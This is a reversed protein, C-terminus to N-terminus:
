MRVMPRGPRIHPSSRTRSCMLVLPPAHIARRSSIARWQSRTWPRAALPSSGPGEYIMRHRGDRTRFVWPNTVFLPDPDGPVPGLRVGPDVIWNVGDSSFASQMGQGMLYMRYGGSAFPVVNASVGSLGTAVLQDCAATVGPDAARAPSSFWLALTAAAAVGLCRTLLRDSASMLM